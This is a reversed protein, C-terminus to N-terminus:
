HYRSCVAKARCCYPNSERLRWWLSLLL